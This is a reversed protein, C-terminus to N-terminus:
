ARFDGVQPLRSLSRAGCSRGAHFGDYEARLENVDGKASWSERTLWEAPEPVSTVFYIESRDIKTYYIM